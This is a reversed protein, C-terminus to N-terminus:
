LFNEYFCLQIKQFRDTGSFLQEMLILFCTIAPPPTGNKTPKPALLPKQAGLAELRLTATELRQVLKELNCAANMNMIIQQEKNHVYLESADLFRLGHIM